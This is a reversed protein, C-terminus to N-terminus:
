PWNPKIDYAMTKSYTLYDLAIRQMGDQATGAV